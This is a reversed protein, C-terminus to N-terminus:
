LVVVNVSGLVEPNSNWLLAKKMDPSVKAVVCITAPAPANNIRHKPQVVAISRQNGGIIVRVCVM